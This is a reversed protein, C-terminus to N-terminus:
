FHISEGLEPIEAAWANEALFAKFKAKTEAEGHVLYLKPHKYFNNIWDLLQSQSAHASFGGLTHVQANVVVEEGAVKFVSAGDVLARGPTGMAQYGVILLHANRRWLNHKLPHRIRGGNCMGSGAIITGKEVKNLEMSEETSISFHLNPLFNHLSKDCGKTMAKKDEKNFINQYRHYIETVAIAMPSDLYIEHHRLKGKQYLEGLRFLIEQTRGVAFSPILINGGNETTEDIIAEFENLTEDMSRHNRDGYTSELLLVDAEKIAKPDQLLAAYSNGLDGSFILKKDQGNENIFVQVISSGLIHGADQFCIDIDETIPIRHAYGVSECQMLTQEVDELTYIPELEDKGARRRRKNEWEIDRKQLAAADKLLVDLLDVTPDTMYILGDYGDLVLKPLRGSHDLHAHSLVVSDLDKIQFPLDQTNKAEEKRGGQFMGCDLLIKSKKTELLYCSGTVGEIAGYFTLKAM